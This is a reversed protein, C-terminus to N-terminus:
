VYICVERYGEYFHMFIHHLDHDSLFAGCISLITVKRENSVVCFRHRGKLMVDIKIVIIGALYDFVINIVDM